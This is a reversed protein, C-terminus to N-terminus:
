KEVLNTSTPWTALSTQVKACSLGHPGGEAPQCDALELVVDPESSQSVRASASAAPRQATPAGFNDAWPSPVWGSRGGGQAAEPFGQARAEPLLLAAALTLLLAWGSAAARGM